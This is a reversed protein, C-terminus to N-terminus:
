VRVCLHLETRCKIQRIERRQGGGKEREQWEKKKEERKKLVKEEKASGSPHPPPDRCQSGMGGSQNSWTIFFHALALSDHSSPPAIQPRKKERGTDFM